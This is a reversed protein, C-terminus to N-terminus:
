VLIDPQPQCLNGLSTCANRLRLQEAQAQAMRVLPVAGCGRRIQNDRGVVVAMVSIFVRQQVLCGCAAGAPVCARRSPHLISAAPLPTQKHSTQASCDSRCPKLRCCNLSLLPRATQITVFLRMQGVSTLCLHHCHRRALHLPCLHSQALMHLPGVASTPRVHLHLCRLWTALASGRSCCSWCRCAECRASGWETSSWQARATSCIMIQVEIPCTATGTNNYSSAPLPVLSTPLLQVPAPTLSATAAGASLALPARRQEHLDGITNVLVIVAISRWIALVQAHSAPSALM